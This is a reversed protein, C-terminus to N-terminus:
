LVKVYQLESLSFGANSLNEHNRDFNEDGLLCLQVITAGQERGYNEFSERLERGGGNPAFWALEVAVLTTPSFLLPSVTGAVFGGASNIFVGGNLLLVKAMDRVYDEDFYADKWISRGHFQKALSVM